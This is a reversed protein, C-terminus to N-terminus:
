YSKPKREEPCSKDNNGEIESGETVLNSLTEFNIWIERINSITIIEQKKIERHFLPFNNWTFDM